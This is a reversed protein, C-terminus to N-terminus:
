QMKHAQFLIELQGRKTKIKTTNDVCEYEHDRSTLEYKLPTKIQLILHQTKSAQYRPYVSPESNITVYLSVLYASTQTLHVDARTGEVDFASKAAPGFRHDELFVLYVM